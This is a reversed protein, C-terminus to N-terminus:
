ISRRAASKGAGTGKGGFMRSMGIVVILILVLSIVVSLVAVANGKGIQGYGLGVRYIHLGLLETFVGPGGGTLLYVTDFTRTALIIRLIIAVMLPGRMLPVMIHWFQQLGRAGDVEAAEFPESPLSNIGAVFILIVYPTSMWSESALITFFAPWAEGRWAVPRTLIHLQQLIYNVPGYDNSFFVMFNFGVVIPTMMMPLLIITRALSNGVFDQSLVIAVLFGIVLSALVALGTFLMTIVASHQFDPSHLLADTYNDLGVFHLGPFALKWDTFSVAIGFVLPFLTVVVLLLLTPALLLLPTYHESSRERGRRKLQSAHNAVEIRGGTLQIAEESSQKEYPFPRPV